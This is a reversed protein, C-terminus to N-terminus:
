YSATKEIEIEFREKGFSSFLPSLLKPEYKVKCSLKNFVASLMYREGVYDTMNIEIVDAIRYLVTDAPTLLILLLLYQGYDLSFADE